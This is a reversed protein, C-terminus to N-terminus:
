KCSPFLFLSEFSKRFPSPARIHIKWKTSFWNTFDKGLKGSATHLICSTPHALHPRINFRRKEAPPPNCNQWSKTSNV